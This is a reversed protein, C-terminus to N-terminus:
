PQTPAYRGMLEAQAIIHGDMSKEINGKTAGEHLNLLSDLAYLKFFYRHEKDPPKPGSYDLKGRTGQGHIGQVSWGETIETTNPAINFVIWHVWVSVGAAEPVDPDDMILALSKTGEPVDEITLPPNIDDFAQGYKEPIVEGNKFAASTLNMNKNCCINAGTDM